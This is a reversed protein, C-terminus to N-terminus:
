ATEEGEGGVVERTIGKALRIVALVEDSKLNRKLLDTFVTTLEKVAVAEVTKITKVSFNIQAKIAGAAAETESRQHDEAKRAKEKLKSVMKPEYKAVLEIFKMPSITM